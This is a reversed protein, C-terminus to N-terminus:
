RNFGVRAMAKEFTDKRNKGRIAVDCKIGKLAGISYVSRGLGNTYQTHNIVICDDLYMGFCNAIHEDAAIGKAYVVCNRYSKISPNLTKNEINKGELGNVIANAINEANFINMDHKNDCFCIEVLMSECNTNRIVYLDNGNKIGRNAFGLSILNNLVTTAESYHNGNYTFIETGNANGNFCNFHISIFLDVNNNNATNVRKSLSDDLSLCADITCDIVKYGLQELKLIVLNGIERTLDSEPRIGLAGYDLSGAYKTHGCDIGIIKKSM